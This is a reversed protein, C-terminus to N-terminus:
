CGEEEAEENERKTKTLDVILESCTPHLGVTNFLQERTVGMNIAVSYGM